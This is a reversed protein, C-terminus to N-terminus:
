EVTLYPAIKLYIDENLLTVKRIDGPQSFNGHEKRYALIVKVLKYPLYPHRLSDSNINTHRILQPDARVRNRIAAFCTSDIGYVERLQEKSYFGGLAERYKIIREARSFGILPLKDLDEASATNLEVIPYGSHDAIKFIQKKSTSVNVSDRIVIYPELLQYRAASVAYMKSFDKKNRFTGGKNRYNLISASQKETFGLALYDEM